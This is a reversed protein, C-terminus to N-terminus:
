VHGSCVCYSMLKSSLSVHTYEIFILITTIDSSVTFILGHDDIASPETFNVSFGTNDYVAGLQSYKPVRFNVEVDDPFRRSAETISLDM